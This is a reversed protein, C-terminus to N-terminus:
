LKKAVLIMNKRFLKPLIYEMFCFLKEFNNKYTSHSSWRTPQFGADLITKKLVTHTFLTKHQFNYHREFFKYRFECFDPLRGFLLELRYQIYAMNPTSIILTGEQKLVRKIEELAVNPDVLHEIIESFVVCDFTNDSFPLTDNEVNCVKADIGKSQAINVASTLFDVGSVTNGNQQLFHSLYGTLCGIDLVRKDTGVLEGIKTTKNDLRYEKEENFNTNFFNNYEQELHTTM